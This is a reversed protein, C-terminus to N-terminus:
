VSRNRAQQSKWGSLGSPVSGSRSRPRRRVTKGMGQWMTPIQLVMFSGMRGTAATERQPAAEYTGKRGRDACVRRLDPGEGYKGGGDAYAPVFFGTNLEGANIEVETGSHPAFSSMDTEPFCVNGIRKRQRRSGSASLGRHVPANGQAYLPITRELLNGSQGSKSVAPSWIFSCMRGAGDQYGPEKWGADAASGSREELIQLPAFYPSESIIQFGEEMSCKWSPDGSIGLMNEKGQQEKVYLGPM